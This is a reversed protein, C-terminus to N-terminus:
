KVHKSINLVVGIACMIIAFSTGGYSIFPLPVGTMPMVSVMSAINEFAQIVIWACIGIVVYKSFKDPAHKAIELMRWMFVLFLGITFVAFVFGLEEGIIAFISDGAVEPLYQFKQRSHGYGLGFFGGSGLALLAQNIHYGINLPDLEPHLFIMIRKARYGASAILLGLTGIGAGILGLLYLVPAGAVFYVVLSMAVIISLTGLDPQLIILFSIISLVILFPVFGARVDKVSHEDRGALWASLYFLFTLKVIESPQVSFLGFVSVWSKASGIGASVGPIFVFILLGISILLLEWAYKKWVQYPFSSFFLLGAIGPILGFILQHKVYYYSDGFQAYGNPSSASLLMILGFLVIAGVISLLVFDMRNHESKEM